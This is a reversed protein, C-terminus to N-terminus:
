LGLRDAVQGWQEPTKAGVNQGFLADQANYFENGLSQQEDETAIVNGDADKPHNPYSKNTLLRMVEEASSKRAVKAPEATVKKPRGPSRSPLTAGSSQTPNGTAKAVEKAPLGLVAAFKGGWLKLAAAEEEETSQRVGAGLENLWRFQWSDVTEGKGNTWAENHWDALMFEADETEPLAIRQLDFPNASAWAPFIKKLGDLARQQITGDKTGICVGHRGLHNVGVLSYGIYVMLANDKTAQVAMPGNRRAPYSGGVTLTNESM